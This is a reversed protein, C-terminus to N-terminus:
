AVLRSSSYMTAVNLSFCKLKKSTATPIAMRWRGFYRCLRACRAVSCRLCRFGSASVRHTSCRQEIGSKAFRNGSAIKNLKAHGCQHQECGTRGVGAGPIHRHNAQYGRSEGRWLVLWRYDHSRRHGRYGRESALSSLWPKNSCRRWPCIIRAFPRLRGSDSRHIHNPREYKPHCLPHTAPTNRPCYEATWSWRRRTSYGRLILLGGGKTPAHCM